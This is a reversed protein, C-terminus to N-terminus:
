AFVHRFTNLPSAHLTALPTYPPSAYLTALRVPHCPTYPPPKAAHPPKARPAPDAGCRAPHRAKGRQGHAEQTLATCGSPSSSSSCSSSLPKEVATRLAVKFAICRAYPPERAQSPQAPITGALKRSPLRGQEHWARSMGM